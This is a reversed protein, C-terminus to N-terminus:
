LAIVGTLTIYVIGFLKSSHNTPLNPSSAPMPKPTVPPEMYLDYAPLYNFKGRFLKSTLLIWPDQRNYRVSSQICALSDLELINEPIYDKYEPKLPYETFHVPGFPVGTPCSDAPLPSPPGSSRTNINEMLTEESCQYTHTWPIQTSPNLPPLIVSLGPTRKNILFRLNAVQNDQELTTTMPNPWPSTGEGPPSEQNAAPTAKLSMFSITLIKNGGNPAKITGENPTIIGKTQSAEDNPDDNKAEAQPPKVEPFRLCAAGQDKPGAAQLSESDPNLDQGQARTELPFSNDIRVNLTSNKKTVQYWNHIEILFLYERGRILSRKSVQIKTIRAM